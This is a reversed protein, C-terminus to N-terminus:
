RKRDFWIKLSLPAWWFCIIGSILISTFTIDVFSYMWKTEIGEYILFRICGGIVLILNALLHRRRALLLGAIIGSFEIALFSHDIVREFEDHHMKRYVPTVIIGGLVLATNVYIIVKSFKASHNSNIAANKSM